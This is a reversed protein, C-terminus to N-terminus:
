STCLEAEGDCLLVIRDLAHAARSLADRGSAGVLDDAANSAESRIIALTQEAALARARWDVPDRPHEGGGEIEVWCLDYIRVLMGLGLPTPDRDADVAVPQDCVPCNKRTATM